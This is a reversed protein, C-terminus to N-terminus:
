PTALNAVLGIVATKAWDPLAMFQDALNAIGNAFNVILPTLQILVPILAQLMTAKAKDMADNVPKLAAQMQKYADAAKIVNPALAAYASQAEQIRAPDGSKMAEDLSKRVEDVAKSSESGFKNLAMGLGVLPLTFAAGMRMGLQSVKEGMEKLNVNVKKIVPTINDKGNIEVKVKPNAM